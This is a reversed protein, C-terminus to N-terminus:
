MTMSRYNCFCYTCYHIAQSREPFTDIYDKIFTHDCIQYLQDELKEKISNLEEIKEKIIQFSNEQEKSVYIDSFFYELHNEEMFTETLKIEDQNDFSFDCIEKLFSLQDEFFLIQNEVNKKLKMLYQVSTM